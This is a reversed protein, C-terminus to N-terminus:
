RSYLQFLSAKNNTILEELLFTLIIQSIFHKLHPFLFDEAEAVEQLRLIKMQLALTLLLILSFYRYSSIVSSDSFLVFNSEQIFFVSFGFDTKEFYESGIAKPLGTPWDRITTPFLSTCNLDSDCSDIHM